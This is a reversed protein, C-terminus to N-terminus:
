TFRFCLKCLDGGGLSVLLQARRRTELSKCFKAEDERMVKLRVSAEEAERREKIAVAM